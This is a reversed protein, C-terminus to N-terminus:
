NLFYERYAFFTIGVMLVLYLISGILIYSRDSPAGQEMRIGTSGQISMDLQRSAMGGKSKFFFVIVVALGAFPIAIDLFGLPMFFSALWNGLVLVLMTISVTLLNKM